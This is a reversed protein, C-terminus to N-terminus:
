FPSDDNKLRSVKLDSRWRFGCPRPRSKSAVPNLKERGVVCPKSSAFFACLLRSLVCCLNSGPYSQCRHTRSVYPHLTGIAPIYPFELGTWAQGVLINISSQSAQGPLMSCASTMINTSKNHKITVVGYNIVSSHPHSAEM